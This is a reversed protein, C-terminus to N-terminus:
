SQDEAQSDQAGADAPQVEQVTYSIGVDVREQSQLSGMVIYLCPDLTRQLTSAPVPFSAGFLETLQVDTRYGSRVKGFFMGLAEERVVIILPADFLARYSNETIGQPALVQVGPSKLWSLVYNSLRFSGISGICEWLKEVNILTSDFGRLMLAYYRLAFMMMGKHGMMLCRFAYRRRERYEEQPLLWSWLTDTVISRLASLKSSRQAVERASLWRKKFTKLVVDQVIFNMMIIRNSASMLARKVADRM